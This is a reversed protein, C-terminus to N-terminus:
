YRALKLVKNLVWKCTLVLIKTEDIDYAIPEIFDVYHNNSSHM